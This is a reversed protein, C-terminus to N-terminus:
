AINGLDAYILAQPLMINLAERCEIRATVLNKTFNDGDETSFVISLGKVEIRELQENDVILIKDDTVWSAAMIPTGWIRLGQGEFTVAGAGAYGGKNYTSNLLRSMQKNSVLGYSANFDADRQNAILKVIQEVDDTLGTTTTSGTAASSAASFFNSNEKKYFDRLLKRQLSTEMFPLDTMMQDSFRTYGAVTQSATKVETWDYDIQSKSAGETQNDIAGESGTEKYTVYLGTATQVTPILDRFNIKQSPLIAQRQNYTAVPDGTLNDTLTMTGVAKLNLRVKGFSKVKENIAEVGGADNLAESLREGFSKVEKVPSFNTKFKTQFEEFGKITDAVQTQVTAFDEKSIGSNKLEEIKDNISKTALVIADNSKKEVAEQLAKLQM